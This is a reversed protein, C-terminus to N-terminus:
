KEVQKDSGLSIGMIRPNNLFEIFKEANFKARVVTANNKDIAVFMIRVNEGEERMYMYVQEGERSRVRIIPSWDAGLSDSMASQMEQDLTARSFTLNEFLTVNFSKVGAPRVVKVALKALWMFPIKVKKAQYNTELHKVIKDYGKGQANATKIGFALLALIFVSLIFKKNTM